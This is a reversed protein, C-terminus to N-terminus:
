RDTGQWRTILPAVDPRPRDTIQEAPTGLYIFGAMREDDALGLVHAMEDDYAYWETVWQCGLGMATAALLINQCVAGASLEQEWEPIKVHPAAQSVVAIVVPARMLRAAEFALTEAGHDPHLVQWRGALKEGFAARAEGEFLLFRWPVLKGHDPVRVAIEFIKALQDADPGPGHMAKLSASRRSALLALADGRANLQDAPLGENTTVKMPGTWEGAVRIVPESQIPLLSEQWGFTAKCSAGSTDLGALAANSYFRGLGTLWKNVKANLVRAMQHQNGVGALVLRPECGPSKVPRCSVSLRIPFCRM